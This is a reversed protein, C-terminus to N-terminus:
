QPTAGCPPLVGVGNVSSRRRCIVFHRSLEVINRATDKKRERGGREGEREKEEMGSYFLGLILRSVTEINQICGVSLANILKYAAM